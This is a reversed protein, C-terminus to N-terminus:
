NVRLLDGFHTPEDGVMCIEVVVFEWWVVEERRCVILMGIIQTLQNDHESSWM